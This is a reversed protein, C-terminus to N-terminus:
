DGYGPIIRRYNVLHSLRQPVCLKCDPMPFGGSRLASRMQRFRDGTWIERFSKERMNGVLADEIKAYCCFAVDGHIRVFSSFWPVICQKSLPRFAGDATYVHGLNPLLYAIFDRLNTSVRLERAVDRAERLKAMMDGYDVGGMLDSVRDEIRMIGLPKFFVAEVGHRYALRIIDPAERYNEKQVVFQFRLFPKSRALKKKVAAIEDIRELVRPFFDTGRIKRYTKETAGDVSIKMLDLGSRVLEELSFASAALSTVLCTKIGREKAHRIMRPQEPHLLPEGASSFYLYLPRAEDLIREYFGFEMHHPDKVERARSCMICNFPCVTTTELIMHLPMSRVHGPKFIVDKVGILYRIYTEHMFMDLTLHRPPIMVYVAPLDCRCGPTSWGAPPM